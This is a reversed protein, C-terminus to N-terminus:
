IRYVLHVTFVRRTVPTIIKERIRIRKELIATKEKTWRPITAYLLKQNSRTDDSTKQTMSRPTGITIVERKKFNGSDAIPTRKGSFVLADSRQEKQTIAM